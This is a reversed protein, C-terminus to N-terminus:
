KGISALQNLISQYAQALAEDAPMVTVQHLGLSQRIATELAKWYITRVEGQLAPPFGVGGQLAQHAQRILKQTPQITKLSPILGSDALRKQVQPSLMAGMFQFAAVTEDDQRSATVSNLYLNQTQVYGSLRGTGYTPWPDVVLNDEGVAQALSPLNWTADIILGVKGQKFLSVDQSTNLEVAGAQEFEDLLEMWRLAQAYSQQNFTPRGADDLWGMGLHGMSFYSSLEIYAGVRGGSTAQRASTLLADLSPSAQSIIQRNRYLVVGQMSFPLGVQAQRYRSAQLAPASIGGWFEVTYYNALNAVMMQDYLTSGWDSSGLLLDPARGLYVATQYSQLLDDQPIFTLTFGVQPYTEQFAQIVGTLFDYNSGELSHWIELIPAAEGQPVLQPMFVGDGAQVSAFTATPRQVLTATPVQTINPRTPTPALTPNAQGSFIGGAQTPAPAASEPGPYASFNDVPGPYASSYDVPGPYASSNDVPGPYASNENSPINTPIPTPAPQSPTSTPTEVNPTVTFTPTAQADPEATPQSTATPTRTPFRTVQRETASPTSQLTDLGPQSPSATVMMAAETPVVEPTPQCANLLLGLIALGGAVWLRVSTIHQLICRKGLILV